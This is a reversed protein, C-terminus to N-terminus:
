SATCHSALIANHEDVARNYADVLRDDRDALKNYRVIVHASPIEEPHAGEIAKERRRLKDLALKMRGIRVLVRDLDDEVGRPCSYEKGGAAITVKSTHGGDNLKVTSSGDDNHVVTGVGGALGLGVAGAAIVRKIM